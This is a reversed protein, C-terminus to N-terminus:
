RQHVFMFHFIGPIFLAYPRFRAGNQISHYFRVEDWERRGQVHIIEKDPMCVSQM